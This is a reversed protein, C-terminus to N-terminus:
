ERDESRGNLERLIVLMIRHFQEFYYGFQKKHEIEGLSELLSLLFHYGEESYDHCVPEYLKLFDLMDEWLGFDTAKSLFVPLIQLVKRKVNISCNEKANANIRVKEILARCIKQSGSHDRSSICNLM